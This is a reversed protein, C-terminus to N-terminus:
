GPDALGPFRLRRALALTLAPVIVWQVLPSLGVGFITPMHPAYTWRGAALAWRELAITAVEGVAIWVLAASTVRGEFAWRWGFLLATCTWALGSLTVDGLAALSCRPAHRWWPTDRFDTFLGAQGMEWALHLAFLSLGLTLWNRERPTM